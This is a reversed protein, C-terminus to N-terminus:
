WDLDETMDEVPTQMGERISRVLGPIRALYLTEQIGRWDEEGVLVASHRRGKITVPEHEETVEDLLRYLRSRAESATLTTM